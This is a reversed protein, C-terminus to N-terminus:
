RAGGRANARGRPLEPLRGAAVLSDVFTGLLQSDVPPCVIGTGALAAQAADAAFSMGLSTMELYTRDCGAITGTFLAAMAGLPHEAAGVTNAEVAALWRRYPVVRLPYGLEGLADALAPLRLPRPNVLHFVQGSPPRRALEVIARSMYDVPTLDIPIDLDPVTGSGIFVGVLRSLMDDANCAGSVSHCGILGPRIVTVPIGRGHASLAMKEAVWKSQCYGGFVVACDELADTERIPRARGLYGASEFVGTSSIHVFRSSGLSALRLLERTGGVNAPRVAGYPYLINVDAGAHFITGVRAALAAFAHADLGLRARALDGCVPRIRRRRDPDRWVDGLRYRELNERIRTMAHEADRARVLCHIEGTTDALLEALLFAGLFGTAGTLLVDASIRQPPDPLGRVEDPLWADAALAAVPLKDLIAAPGRGRETDIARAMGAVTPDDFLSRLPLSVGLTTRVRALLQMLLMSHGGLEFFNDHVGVRDVSLIEAWLAALATEQANRPAESGALEPRRSPPLPLARRDLKGGISRPLEDLFVIAGPRVSEPLWRALHRLLSATLAERSDMPTNAYAGPSRPKVSSRPPAAAQVGRRVLLVDYAGGAGDDSWTLRSTYPLRQELGAWQEPHVGQVSTAEALRRIEGVHAPRDTRRLLRVAAVASAVRANPVNRLLIAAPADRELWAVVDGFTMGSDAWDRLEVDVGGRAAAGHARRLSVDYRFRTLENDLAGRKLEIEVEVPLEARQAFAVFFEPDLMLRREDAVRARVHACLAETPTGDAARHLEVATHFAEMLPLSLVDGVFLVGGPALQRLAQELVGVLYDVGPFMAVVSNIVITDFPGWPLASLEHAAARHLTVRSALESGALLDELYRIAEGSVDTAVYHECHPAIRLLLMGSGCGIELLRRPRLSRIREVTHEVWERIHEDPLAKGTYSDNWGGIHFDADWDRKPRRYAEDWLECWEEILQEELVSRGAAPATPVVYAFLREDGPALQKIAAAAERVAPHQLLLAEIEGLEVRHGRLKVQDDFRGLIELDGDPLLRGQDGTRFLRGARPDVVFRAATLEDRNVYGRALAAGGIYVEGPTGHAAPRLQEDLVFVQVGDIARGVSVNPGGDADTVRHFTADITAETPGYLNILEADLVEAFRRALRTPLLEGGAFVRRLSTCARVGETEVFVALLSPVFQAVTIRQERILDILYGPDKHGDPRALVLRAGALLPALFEWISADFALPTKQLVRDGAHLPFERQMWAMHNCIARHPIMVGKPRGTSGSTYLIYALADLSLEFEPPTADEDRLDAALDPLCIWRAGTRRLSEPGPTTSVVWRIAADDIMWALRDVPHSPELPVFAGGAKLIALLGIVLDLSREAHLGVAADPGVGLTRLRRALRNAQGDLERYTMTIEALSVAIAEPSALVQAQFLHPLPLPQSTTM